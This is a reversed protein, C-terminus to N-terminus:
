ASSSSAAPPEPDRGMGVPRGEFAIGLQAYVNLWDVFRQLRVKGDLNREVVTLGDVTVPNGTPSSARKVQRAPNGARDRLSPDPDHHGHYRWRVVHYQAGESERDFVPLREYTPAEPGRRPDEPFYRALGAKVDDEVAQTISDLESDDQQSM